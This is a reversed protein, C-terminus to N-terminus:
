ICSQYEGKSDVMYYITSAKALAAQDYSGVCIHMKDGIDRLKDTDEATKITYEGYSAEKKLEKSTYPIAKNECQMRVQIESARDHIDRLSGNLSLEKKANRIVRWLHITDNLISRYQYRFRDTTFTVLKKTALTEGYQRVLSRIFMQVDSLPVDRHWKIWGADIFKGLNDPKKIGSKTLTDMLGITFPNERYMKRAKASKPIDLSNCMLDIYKGEDMVERPQVKKFDTARFNPYYYNSYYDDDDKGVTERFAVEGTFEDYRILANPAVILDALFKIASPMSPAEIHTEGCSYLYSNTSIREFTVPLKSMALVTEIYRVAFDPHIMTLSPYDYGSWDLRRMIHTGIMKVYYYAVGTKINISVRTIASLPKPEFEKNNKAASYQKKPIFYEQGMCYMTITGEDSLTIGNETKERYNIVKDPERMGCDCVFLRKYKKTNWVDKIRKRCKPCWYIDNKTLIPTDPDYEPREVFLKISM